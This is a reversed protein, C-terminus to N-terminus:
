LIKLKIINLIQFLTFNTIEYILFINFKTKRNYNKVLNKYIFM